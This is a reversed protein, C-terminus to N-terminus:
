FTLCSYLRLNIHVLEITHQLSDDSIVLWVKTVSIRYKSQQVISVAFAIAYIMGLDYGFMM